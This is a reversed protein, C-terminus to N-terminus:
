YLGKLDPTVKKPAAPVPPPALAPPSGPLQNYPIPKTPKGDAGIRPAGAASGSGTRTGVTSVSPAAPSDIGKHFAEVHGHVNMLRAEKPARFDTKPQGALADRMFDIFIPM